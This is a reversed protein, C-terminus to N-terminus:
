RKGLRRRGPSTRLRSDALGTENWVGASLGFRNHEGESARRKSHVVDLPVAGPPGGGFIEERTRDSTGPYGPPLGDRSGYARRRAGRVRPSWRRLREDEGIQRSSGPDQGTARSSNTAGLRHEQELPDGGWSSMRRKVAGAGRRVREGPGGGVPAASTGRNFFIGNVIGRDDTSRRTGAVSNAAKGGLELTVEQDTGEIAQRDIPRRRDVRLGVKNVDPHGVM